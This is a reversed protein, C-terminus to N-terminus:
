VQYARPRQILQKIQVSISGAKNKLASKLDPLFNSLQESPLTSDYFYYRAGFQAGDEDLFYERHTPISAAGVPSVPTKEFIQSKEIDAYVDFDAMTLDTMRHHDPNLWKHSSADWQPWLVHTILHVTDQRWKLFTSERELPPLNPRWAPPALSGPTVADEYMRSFQGYPPFNVDM